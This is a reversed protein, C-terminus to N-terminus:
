PMEKTIEQTKNNLPEASIVTFEVDLFDPEKRAIEISLEKVKLANGETEVGYLVDVMEPLIVRGLKVWVETERYLDHVPNTRAKMRELKATPAKERVIKELFGKPSDGAEQGQMRGLIENIQGQLLVYKRRLNLMKRLVEDRRVVKEQVERWRSLPSNEWLFFYWVLLLVLFVAGGAMLTRKERPKLRAM